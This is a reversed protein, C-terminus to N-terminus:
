DTIPFWLETLLEHDVTHGPTRYIELLPADRLRHPHRVVWREFIQRFAAGIFRYSGRYEFVAYSGGPWVAVSAGPPVPTDPKVVLGADYRGIHAETEAQQDDYIAAVHAFQRFWVGPVVRELQTWALPASVDSYSGHERAYVVREAARRRIVPEASVDVGPAAAGDLPPTTRDVPATPDAPVAPRLARLRAQRERASAARFATPSMALAAKFAKNFASPTQYGVDLAIDSIPRRPDGALQAAAREIRIRVVADVVTEGTLARYMRSLHFRSAGAARAVAGLELPETAHADLFRKAQAVQARQRLESGGRRRTM